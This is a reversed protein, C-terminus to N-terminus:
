CDSVKIRVGIRVRGREADGRETEIMYTREIKTSYETMSMTKPVIAVARKLLAISSLSM